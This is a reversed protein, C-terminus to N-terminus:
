DAQAGAIRRLFLALTEDLVRGVDHDRRGLRQVEHQRRSTRALRQPVDAGDDDVFYVGERTVLTAAVERQGHRAEVMNTLVPRGTDAETGRLTGDFFGGGEENARLVHRPRYVRAIVVHRRAQSLTEVRLIM